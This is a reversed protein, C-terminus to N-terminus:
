NTKFANKAILLDLIRSISLGSNEKQRYVDAQPLDPYVTFFAQRDIQRELIYDALQPLAEIGRAVERHTGLDLINCLYSEIESDGLPRIESGVWEAIRAENDALGAHVFAELELQSNPTSEAVLAYCQWDAITLLWTLPSGM